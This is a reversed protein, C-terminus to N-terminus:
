DGIKFWDDNFDGIEALSDAGLDATEEFFLDDFNSGMPMNSNEHHASDEAPPHQEEGGGNGNHQTEPIVFDASPNPFDNGVYSELGPLLSLLDEPAAAPANTDASTTSTEAHQQHSFPQDDTGNTIFDDMNFNLDTTDHQGSTSGFLDLDITETTGVHDGQPLPSPLQQNAGPQAGVDTPKAKEVPQTSSQTSANPGPVDSIQNAHEQAQTRLGEAQTPAETMQVDEAKELGGNIGNTAKPKETDDKSLNSPSEANVQQGLIRAKEAAFEQEERSRRSLIAKLDREMIAKARTIELELTDLAEHYRDNTHEMARQVQGNVPTKSSHLSPDRFLKGTQILMDNLMAPLIDLPDNSAPPKATM